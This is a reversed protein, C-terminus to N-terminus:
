ELTILEESAEWERIKEYDTDLQNLDQHMLYIHGVKSPLDVTKEVYDGISPARVIMHFSPLTSLLAECNNGKVVGARKMILNVVRSIESMEYPADINRSFWEPELYRKLTMTMHSEGIAKIIPASVIGGQMRAGTEILIPGRATLMIETHSPGEEIGLATLVKKTYNILQTQIKGEYPIMTEYDYINGVGRINLRKELWMETIRHKGNISVANVLYQDGKLFEQVLVSSNMLGIVNKKGHVVRFAELAEREDFCVRVDESGMANVPKVVVPFSNITKVHDLAEHESSALHQTACDLGYDSIAKAMQFKDRRKLSTKPDNGKLGLSCSLRDSLEVGPESGAIVFVPGFGKVKEVLDAYSLDAAIILVDFLSPRFNKIYSKSIEEGSQVHVLFWGLDKLSKALEAGTSHGDVICAVRPDSKSVM